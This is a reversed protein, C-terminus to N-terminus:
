HADLEILHPIGPYIRISAALTPHPLYNACGSWPEIGKGGRVFGEEIIHSVWAPLMCRGKGARAVWLSTVPDLTQFGM